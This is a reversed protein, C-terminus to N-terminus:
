IGASLTIGSNVTVDTIIPINNAINNPPALAYKPSLTPIVTEADMGAATIEIPIIRKINLLSEMNSFLMTCVIPEAPSDTAAPAINVSGANNIHACSSPVAIGEKTSIASIANIPPKRPTNNM